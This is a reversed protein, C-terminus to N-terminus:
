SKVGTKGTKTTSTKSDPCQSGTLVKILPIPSPAIPYLMITCIAMLASATMSKYSFLKLATGFSNKMRLNSLDTSYIEDLLLHVVFGLAIFIGNLWAHLVKWHLFRYSICTMLLAFFSAALLSHFVGRHVTFRNFLAFVGHRILFYTGAASLLLPYPEYNNKYGFPMLKTQASSSSLEAKFAHLAALAGMFALVSFLLKVPRSNSADIDPLMGGLTTLFVFWLIDGNTILHADVAVLSAGIGAAAAVCLHTNFNAM